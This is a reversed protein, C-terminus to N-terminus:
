AVLKPINMAPLVETRAEEVANKERSVNEPRFFQFCRAKRVGSAARVFGAAHETDVRLRRGVVVVM